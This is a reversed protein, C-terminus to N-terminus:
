WLSTTYTSPQNQDLIQQWPHLHNPWIPTMIWFKSQHQIRFITQISWFNTGQTMNPPLMKQWSNTLCLANHRLTKMAQCFFPNLKGASQTLRSNLPKEQWLKKKLIFTKMPINTEKPFFVASKYRVRYPRAIQIWYFANPNSSSFITSPGALIDELWKFAAIAKSILPAYFLIFTYTTSSIFSLLLSLTTKHGWAGTPRSILSQQCAIYIFCLPKTRNYHYHYTFLNQWIPHNFVFTLSLYHNFLSHLCIILATFHHHSTIIAYNSTIISSYVRRYQRFNVNSYYIYSQLQLFFDFSSLIVRNQRLDVIYLPLIWM